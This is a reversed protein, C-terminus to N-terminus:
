EKQVPLFRCSVPELWVRRVVPDLSGHSAAPELGTRDFYKYVHEFRVSAM